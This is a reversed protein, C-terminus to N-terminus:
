SEPASPCNASDIVITTALTATTPQLIEIRGIMPDPAPDLHWLDWASLTRCDGAGLIAHTEFEAPDDAIVSTAANVVIGTFPAREWALGISETVVGDTTNVGGATAALQLVYGDGDTATFGDTTDIERATGYHRHFDDVHDSSISVTELRLGLDADDVSLSHFEPSSDAGEDSGGCATALLVVVVILRVLPM